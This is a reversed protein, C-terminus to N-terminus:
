REGLARKFASMALHYDYLTAYYNRQANTLRTQADLVETSTAVQEKFREESMRFGEEAQAVALRAVEIKEEASALNLLAEKIELAILDKIQDLAYHAKLIDAKKASVEHGVKGWTWLDWALGLSITTTEYDSSDDFLDTTLGSSSRQYSAELAAAPYLEAKALRVAEEAAEIAKNAAAVEPRNRLALELSAQFEPRIPEVELIDELTLEAEVPQRLLTNLSAKALRLGGTATTLTLRQDALQVQVQLLDNKPILGVEYFSQATEVQAELLLVAQEAVAQGKEALLVNFYASKVQLALDLRALDVEIQSIELGLEELKKAASLAFGTFIPQSLSIEWAFNDRDSLAVETYGLDMTQVPQVMAYGYATSIVPYFAAQAAKVRDQAAKVEAEAQLVNLSREQALSLCDALTLVEALTTEASFLLCAALIIWLSWLRSSLSM